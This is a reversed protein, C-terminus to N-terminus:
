FSIGIYMFCAVETFSNMSISLFMQNICIQMPITHHRLSVTSLRWFGRSLYGMAWGHHPLSIPQRKDKPQYPSKSQVASGSVLPHQLLTEHARLLPRGINTHLLSLTLTELQSQTRTGLIMSQARTCPKPKFNDGYQHNRANDIRTLKNKSLEHPAPSFVWPTWMALALPSKYSTKPLTDPQPQETPCDLGTLRHSAKQNCARNYFAM